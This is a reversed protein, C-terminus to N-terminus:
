KEAYKIELTPYPADGIITPYPAGGVITPYPALWIITPHGGKKILFSTQFKMLIGIQHFGTLPTYM